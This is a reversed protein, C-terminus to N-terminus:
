GEQIVVHLNNLYANVQRYLQQLEPLQDPPYTGSHIEYQNIIIVTQGEQRASSQFRAMKTQYDVAEPLAEVVTNAPLNLQFTDCLAYEFRVFLPSVREGSQIIKPVPNRVWNFRAINHGQMPNLLGSTTLEVNEKLLPIGNQVGSEYSFKEVAYSAFSFKKNLQKKQDEKSATKCLVALDDQLLGSYVSNIQIIQRDSSPNVDWQYHRHLYTSASTYGATRVLHSKWEPMLLLAYRNQTFAGLYGANLYPSTCEVWITDPGNPVCLIVHNFHNAPFDPDIEYYDEEGANIVAMYSTIGAVKLMAKMYNTLGKCDGYGSKCVESATFTQWGAIGYEIAVYRTNEQLYKYLRAVKDAVSHEQAAISKITEVKDAPLEDRGDNLHYIFDGLNQWSSMNGSHKFLNFDNAAFEIYFHNQRADRFSEGPSAYIDKVQWLKQQTRQTSPTSVKLGKDPHYLKYRMNVDPAYQLLLSASQVACDSGPQPHWSPIYFLSYISRKVSVQVTYPYSQYAVQFSKFRSDDYFVYSVASASVDLMDKEKITKIVKGQADFVTVKIFDIHNSLNYSENNDLYRAGQEDLITLAYERVYLLENLSNVQMATSDYRLVAHANKKLGAPINAVDFEANGKGFSITSASGAFMLFLLLIKKM